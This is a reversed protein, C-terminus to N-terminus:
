DEASGDLKAIERRNLPDRPPRGPKRKPTKPTAM